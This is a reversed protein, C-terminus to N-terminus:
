RDGEATPLTVVIRLGHPEVNEARMAGGLRGIMKWAIALGLGSGNASDQRALDTRYFVDFLRDISDPPVGPGDDALSLTISSADGSLEILSTPGDGTAYAASNVLINHLVNRFQAIDLDAWLANPPTALRVTLGKAAYESEVSAVFERLAQGVEVRELRLPFEGLDLKTFLFLQSIIHELDDAKARITDLYHRRGEPTTAVGKDLGELYAKIATLPTRLDHSIGAIL